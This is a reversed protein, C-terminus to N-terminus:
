SRVLWDAFTTVLPGFTKFRVEYGSGEVWGKAAQFVENSKYRPSPNIDIDIYAPKKIGASVLEGAVELSAQVENMLRTNRVTEKPTRWRKFICHAGNGPTYLAIVTSYVTKGGRNQSDTGVMIEVTPHDKMYERVYEVINEIKEGSCKKFDLTGIM